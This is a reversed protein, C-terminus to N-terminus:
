AYENVEASIAFPHNFDDEPARGLRVCLVRSRRARPSRPCSHLRGSREITWREGRAMNRTEIARQPAIMQLAKTRDRDLDEGRM